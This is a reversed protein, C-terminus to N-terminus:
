KSLHLRSNNLRICQYHHDTDGVLDDALGLGEVFEARSSARQRPRPGLGQDRLDAIGEVGGVCFAHEVAPEPDGKARGRHLRSSQKAPVMELRTGGSQHAPRPDARRRAM